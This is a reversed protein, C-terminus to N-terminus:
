LSICLDIDHPDCIKSTACQEANCCMIKLGHFIEPKVTGQLLGAHLQRMKITYGLKEEDPLSKIVGHVYGLVQAIGKKFTESDRPAFTMCTHGTTMDQLGPLYPRTLTKYLARTWNGQSSDCVKDVEWKVRRTLSIMTRIDACSENTVPEALIKDLLPKQQRKHRDFFFELASQNVVSHTANGGAAESLDESMDLESLETAEMEDNGATNSSCTGTLCLSGTFVPAATSGGRRGESAPVMFAILVVLPTWQWM